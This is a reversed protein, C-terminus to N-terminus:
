GIGQLGPQLRQSLMGMAAALKQPEPPLDEPKPQPPMLQQVIPQVIEMSNAADKFGAGALMLPFAPMAMMKNLDVGSQALNNIGKSFKDFGAGALLSIIATM